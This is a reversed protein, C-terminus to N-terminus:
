VTGGVLSIRVLVFVSILSAGEGEEGEVKGKGEDGEEGEEGEETIHGSHPM